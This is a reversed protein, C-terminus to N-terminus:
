IIVLGLTKTVKQEFKDTFKKGWRANLQAVTSDYTAEAQPSFRVALSM